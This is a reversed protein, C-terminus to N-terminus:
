DVNWGRYYYDVPTRYDHHHATTTKSGETGIDIERLHGSLSGFAQKKQKKKPQEGKKKERAAIAALLQRLTLTSLYGV